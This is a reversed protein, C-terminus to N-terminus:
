KKSNKKGRNQKILEYTRKLKDKLKNEYFLYLAGLGFKRSSLFAYNATNFEESVWSKKFGYDGTMFNLQEYGELSIHEIIKGILLNGPSYYNYEPDHVVKWDYFVNNNLFGLRYAIPNDDISLKFMIAKGQDINPSIAETRCQYYDDTLPKRSDNVWRLNYLRIFDEQNECYSKSDKIVEFKVEGKRSLRNLKKRYQGRTNKSRTLLFEDFTLGKFNAINIDVLHKKMFLDEKNLVSYVKDNSNVNFVKVVNWAQYSKLHELILNIVSDSLDHSIITYFDGFHVPISRLIKVGMAKEICFPAIMIIQNDKIVTVIHLIRNLFRLRVWPEIWEYTMQPFIKNEMQLRVWSSKLEENNIDDYVKIQM